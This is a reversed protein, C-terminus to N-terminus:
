LYKLKKTRDASDHMHDGYSLIFSNTYTSRLKLIFKERLPDKYLPLCMDSQERVKM